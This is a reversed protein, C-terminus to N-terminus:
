LHDSSIGNKIREKEADDFAMSIRTLVLLFLFLIIFKM